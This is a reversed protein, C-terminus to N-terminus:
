SAHFQQLGFLLSLAFLTAGAHSHAVSRARNPARRLQCQPAWLNRRSRQACTDHLAHHHQNVRTSLEYSSFILISRSNATAVPVRVQGEGLVRLFRNSCKNATVYNNM